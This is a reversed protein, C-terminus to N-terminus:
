EKKKEKESQQIELRIAETRAADLLQLFTPVTLNVGIPIILVRGSAPDFHLVVSFPIPKNETESM